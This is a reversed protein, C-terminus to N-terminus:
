GLAEVVAKKQGEKERSRFYFTPSLMLSFVPPHFEEREFYDHSLETHYLHGSVVMLNEAYTFSKASQGSLKVFAISLVITFVTLLFKSTDM